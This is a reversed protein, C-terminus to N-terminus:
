GHQVSACLSLAAFSHTAVSTGAPSQVRISKEKLTTPTCPPPFRFGIIHGQIKSEDYSSSLSGCPTFSARPFWQILQMGQRHPAFSAQPFWQM